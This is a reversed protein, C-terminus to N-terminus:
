YYPYDNIDDNLLSLAEDLRGLNYLITIKALTRDSTPHAQIALNIHELAADLQGKCLYGQALATQLGASPPAKPGRADILQQAEALGEDCRGLNPLILAPIRESDPQTNGLQNAIRVNELAITELATYDVRYPADVALDEDFTYRFYYYDGITPDLAIAQNVDALARHVYDIYEDHFRNNLLLGSYARARQFYAEAYGPALTVAKDLVTVAEAYNNNDM